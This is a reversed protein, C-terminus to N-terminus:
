ALALVGTRGAYQAEVGASSRRHPRSGRFTLFSFSFVGGLFRDFGDHRCRLGSISESLFVICGDDEFRDKTCEFRWLVQRRNRAEWHAWDAWDSASTVFPVELHVSPGRGARVRRTSVYEDGDM